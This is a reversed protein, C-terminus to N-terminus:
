RLFAAPDEMGFIQVDIHDKLTTALSMGVYDVKVPFSKHERDILVAVEVKKPVVNMLPKMAYFLTRGTNAVDDVIIICKDKLEDIPCSFTVEDSLPKAPNLRINVLNMPVMNITELEKHILEAFAFGNNNIGAIVLSSEQYNEELIQM